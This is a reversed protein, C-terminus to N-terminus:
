AQRRLLSRAALHSRARRLGVAMTRRNRPRRPTPSVVTMTWQRPRAAFRAATSLHARRPRRQLRWAPNALSRQATQLRRMGEVTRIKAACRGTRTPRCPQRTDGHAPTAHWSLRRRARAEFADTRIWGTTLCSATARAELTRREGLSLADMDRLKGYPAGDVQSPSRSVFCGIRARMDLRRYRRCGVSWGPCSKQVALSPWSSDLPKAFHRRTATPRHRKGM